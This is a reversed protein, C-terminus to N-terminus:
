PYAGAWPTWAWDTNANYAANLAGAAATATTQIMRKSSEGGGGVGEDRHSFIRLPVAGFGYNQILAPVRLLCCNAAVNCPMLTCDIEIRVIAGLGGAANIANTIAAITLGGPTTAWYLQDPHNSPTGGLGGVNQVARLRHATPGATIAHAVYNVGGGHHHWNSVVNYIAAIKPRSFQPM